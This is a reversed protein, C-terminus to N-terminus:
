RAVLARALAAEFEAATTAEIPATGQSTRPIIADSARAAATSPAVVSAATQDQRRVHLVTGTPLHLLAPPDVVVLRFDSGVDDGLKKLLIRDASALVAMRVGGEELHGVASYPLAAAVAQPEATKAAASTAIGSVSSSASVSARAARPRAHPTRPAASAQLAAADGARVTAIPSTAGPQGLADHPAHSEVAQGPTVGALLLMAIAGPVRSSRSPGRM